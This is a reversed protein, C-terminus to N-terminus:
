DRVVSSSLQCALCYQHRYSRLLGRVFCLDLLAVTCSWLDEMFGCTLAVNAARELDYRITSQSLILVTVPMQTCVVCSLNQNGSQEPTKTATLFHGALDM